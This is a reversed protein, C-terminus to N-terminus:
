RWWDTDGDGDECNTDKDEESENKVDGGEETDNWLIDDNTGDVKNSICYKKFVKVTLQLSIHQWAMIIWM